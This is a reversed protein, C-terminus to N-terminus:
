AYDGKKISQLLEPTALVKGTRGKGSLTHVILRALGLISGLTFGLFYRPHGLTRLWFAMREFMLGPSHRLLTMSPIHKALLLFYNRGLYFYKKFPHRDATYSRRHRCLPEALLASAYGKSAARFCFDVDEYFSGFREDLYGRDDRLSHFVHPQFVAAAFCPGFIKTNGEISRVPQGSHRDYINLTSSIGIGASDIADPNEYELILTQVLDFGSRDMFSLVSRIWDPHCVADTNVFAIARPGQKLTQELAINHARTFGENRDLAILTIRPYDNQLIAVSEDTSGNDVVMIQIPEYTQQQLADLCEGLVAAGNYNVVIACVLPSNGAL